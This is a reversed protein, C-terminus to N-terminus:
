QARWSEDFLGAHEAEPDDVGDTVKFMAFDGYRPTPFDGAWDAWAATLGSNIVIYRDSGLPSPYILAPLTEPAPFSRSGLAVTERSWRLPLRGSLKAIWRNSGPDGFLVVNHKAFDAATVDKDDKVRIHGRYALAYQREFRQLIRLAQDNAGKNWPAGTPRV